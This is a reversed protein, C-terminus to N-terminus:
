HTDPTLSWRQNCATFLLEASVHKAPWLQKVGDIYYSLQERYPQALLDLNDQHAHQHSKYDIILVSDPRLVLRDIIGHVLTHGGRYIIPVENLARQGHEMSFIDRNDAAHLVAQVEQWCSQWLSDTISLRLQRSIYALWYAAPQESAGQTLCELLLHILTGRERGDPDDSSNTVSQGGLRSPAIERETPMLALPRDLGRSDNPASPTPTTVPGAAPMAHRSELLCPATIDEATKGYQHLVQGYWGLDEGQQPRSACLFLLQRCRTAAVYFLNADEQQLAAAHAAFIRATFPDRQARAPNLLFAEPRESDVPWHVLAKHAHKDSGSGACDALFVVPAELGKASHITMFQVRHRDEGAPPADPAENHQQRLEKLWSLFKLLSPYRGSDVELALELFRTLNATVRSVTHAPSASSYRALVNGEAYIRDLLDHVPLQGALALWPRLLRVARALASDAALEAERQLLTEWWSSTHGGALQLLDNESAAFLPSRLVGALALNHHPTLLFHLLDQLDQIELSELLTGREAGIYPIAHDRLAREYDNAHTRSRLLIMIDGYQLARGEGPGGIITHQQMLAQIQRAIGVGEQYYRLLNQEQRPQHLPNRLYVAEQDTKPPEDCLPLLTVQGWDNKQQTSHPQFGPLAAHLAGSGFLTNVFDIIAPSSRWSSSLPLTRAQLHERLWHEASDFLRPEARRFRYISQKADGVFLVSRQRESTQSALEELLPLLLRWQTPNTDQFEDILIHDLRTDLKYQVWLAHESENLLQYAKWELDSFDLLRQEQKIRQYHDLYQQGALYWASCRAYTAYCQLQTELELLRACIFHHDEIFQTAAAAGLSKDLAQGPKRVRPEGKQTLFVDRLRALREPDSLPANLVEGLQVAHRDNTQTRHQTLGLRFRALAQQVVDNALWDALPDQSLDIDLDTLLQQQATEVAAANGQSYAWWDSRHDLFSDLAQRTNFQELEAFLASLAASLPSQPQQAAETMLAEWAEDRYEGTREILEFGPPIDAELPFRRLLEQCFAHFTTIRVQQEASLLEEYLQRARQQIAASAGLGLAALAPVLTAEDMQSFQYLRQLLRHQMEASAKRTFTIALIAAPAHGQILLSILRSVLLYTKGSGASAQVTLYPLQGVDAPNCAQEATTM